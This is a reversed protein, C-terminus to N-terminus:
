EVGDGRRRLWGIGAVGLGLLLATAPEPVAAAVDLPTTGIRIEDLLQSPDTRFYLQSLVFPAGVTLSASPPGLAPGPDLFLDVTTTGSFQSLRLVFFDTRGVGASIGGPALLAGAGLTVAGGTDKSVTISGAGGGGSPDLSVFAGTGAAGSNEM